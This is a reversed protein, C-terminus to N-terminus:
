GREVKKLQTGTRGTVNKQIHGFGQCKRCQVKALVPCTLTTHGQEKCWKCVAKKKINYRANSLAGSLDYYTVITESDLQLISSTDSILEDFLRLCHSLMTDNDSMYDRITYRYDVDSIM